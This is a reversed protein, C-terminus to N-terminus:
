FSLLIKSDKIDKSLLRVSIKNNNFIYDDPIDNKHIIGNINDVTRVFMGFEFMSVPFVEILDNKKFTENFCIFPNINSRKISLYVVDESAFLVIANLKAGIVIMSKSLPISKSWFLENKPIFFSENKDSDIIKVEIENNKISLIEVKIIDNKSLM